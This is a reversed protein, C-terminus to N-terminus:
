RPKWPLDCRASMKQLREALKPLSFQESHCFEILEREEAQIKSAEAPVAAAISLPITLVGHRDGHLLDGPSIKLGGIEVPEGFEIIHAYSHSVSLNGSFVHFGMAELAPVDRVAGNTICGVCRLAQAITGHIEGVLAGIGPRHDVDELVLVRPEPLTAFYNWFDIRDYYCRHAMPPASTKVRAPVAYGAMPSLHPFRCRVAGSVFGENRPRVYLREIANSVTCTDIAVLAAALAELERPPIATQSHRDRHLM